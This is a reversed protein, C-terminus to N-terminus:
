GIFVTVKIGIVNKESIKLSANFERWNFVLNLHVVNFCIFLLVILCLELRVSRKLEDNSIQAITKGLM